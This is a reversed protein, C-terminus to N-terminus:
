DDVRGGTLVLVATRPPLESNEQDLSSPSARELTKRLGVLAAASTFEAVVGAEQSLWAQATTIEADQATVLEGACGSLEALLRTQNRPHKVDISAARTSADRRPSLERNRSAAFAEVLPRNADAQVGILRPSKPLVGIERLERFGKGIAALTCGDGVPAAVVDPASWDLQESIEFAVTKKGEVLFPNYACNRSWWGQKRGEVESDAVARDYDGKSVTIQAGYRQLWSLRVESARRPVFVHSTLGRHACYGALSIAANGASACFLDPRGSAHAISVGVATARDKLCQTPNKTEDKIWLTELGLRAALRPASFLPTSGTPLLDPCPAIPLLSQYRFLDRRGAIAVGALFESSSGPMEYRVDLIGPRDPCRHQAWTSEDTCQPCLYADPTPESVAQCELCVLKKALM